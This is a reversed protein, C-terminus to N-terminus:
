ARPPRAPVNEIICDAAIFTAAEQARISDLNADSLGSIVAHSPNPYAYRDNPGTRDHLAAVNIGMTAQLHTTIQGVELLALRDKASPTMHMSSRVAALQAEKDGPFYNLWNVSLGADEQTAKAWLFAAFTVVISGDPKTDTHARKAFRALRHQPDTIPPLTM